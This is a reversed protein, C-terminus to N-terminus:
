PMSKFLRAFHYRSLSVVLAIKEMDFEELWYNEIYERAKAIDSKGAYMRTTVFVSVIHSIRGQEDRIPFNLIDTYMSEVKYDPSRAEYWNYFQALPVKVDPVLLIEDEFIRQVYDSLGLRVNVHPDTRLNYEGVMQAPDAINWMELVARNSFVTMGDPSFIQIPIPFLEAVQFLMEENGLVSQFSALIQRDPWCVLKEM